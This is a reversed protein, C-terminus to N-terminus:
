FGYKGPHKLFFKLFFIEISNWALCIITKNYILYAIGLLEVNETSNRILFIMAYKEVAPFFIDYRVHNTGNYEKM